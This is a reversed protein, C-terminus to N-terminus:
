DRGQAHYEERADEVIKNLKKPSLSKNKLRSDIRAILQRFRKQWTQGQLDELLRTREKLPLQRLAIRLQRINIDIKIM